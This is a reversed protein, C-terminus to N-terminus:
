TCSPDMSVSECVPIISTNNIMYVREICVTPIEAILIRRLANVIAPDVGVIDFELFNSTEIGEEDDLAPSPSPPAEAAPYPNIAIRFTAEFHSQSWSNDIGLGMYEHASVATAM